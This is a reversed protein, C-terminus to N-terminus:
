EWTTEVLGARRIVRDLDRQALASGRQFDDWSVEPLDPVSGGFTAPRRGPEPVVRLHSGPRLGLRAIQEAPIGGDPGVVLEVSDPSM